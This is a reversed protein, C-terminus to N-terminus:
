RLFVQDKRNDRSLFYLRAALGRTQRDLREEQFDEVDSGAGSGGVAPIAMQVTM